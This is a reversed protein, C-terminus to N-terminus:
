RKGVICIPTDISGGVDGVTGNADIVGLITSASIAPMELVDLKLRKTNNTGRAVYAYGANM